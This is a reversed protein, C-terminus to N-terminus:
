REPDLPGINMANVPKIPKSAPEYSSPISVGDNIWPIMAMKVSVRTLHRLCQSHKEGQVTDIQAQPKATSLMVVHNEASLGMMATQNTLELRYSIISIQNYLNWHDKCETSEAALPVKLTINLLWINCTQPLLRLTANRQLWGDRWDLWMYMPM